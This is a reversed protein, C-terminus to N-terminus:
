DAIDGLSRFWSCWYQYNAFQTRNAHYSDMEVTESLDPDMNLFETAKGSKNQFFVPGLIILILWCTGKGLWTKEMVDHKECVGTAESEEQPKAPDNSLLEASSVGVRRRKKPPRGLRM